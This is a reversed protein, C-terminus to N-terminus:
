EIRITICWDLECILEWTLRGVAGKEAKEAWEVEMPILGEMM